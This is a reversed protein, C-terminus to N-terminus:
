EEAQRMVVDQQGDRLMENRHLILAPAMMAILFATVILALHSPRLSSIQEKETGDEPSVDVLGTPALSGARLHRVGENELMVVFATHESLDSVNITVSSANVPIPVLQRALNSHTRNLSTHPTPELQWIRVIEDNSINWSLTENVYEISDLGSWNTSSNAMTANLDLAQRSGTLLFSGDVVISPYFLLRYEVDFRLKSDSLFTEDFTSPHHQLMVSGNESLNNLQDSVQLCPECWDASFYEVLHDPQTPECTSSTLCEYSLYRVDLLQGQIPQSTEEVPQSQSIYSPICLLVTLMLAMRFASGM